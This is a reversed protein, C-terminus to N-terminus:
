VELNRGKNSIKSKISRMESRFYTKIVINLVYLDLTRGTEVQNVSKKNIVIFTM